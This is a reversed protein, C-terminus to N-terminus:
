AAARPISTKRVSTRSRGPVVLDCLSRGFSDLSARPSDARSM